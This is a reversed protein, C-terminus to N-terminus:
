TKLFKRIRFVQRVRFVFGLALELGELRAMVTVRFKLFIIKFKKLERLDDISFEFYYLERIAEKLKEIHATALKVTCLSRQKEPKLFQIQYLSYAM